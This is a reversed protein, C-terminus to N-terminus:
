GNNVKRNNTVKKVGTAVNKGVQTLGYIASFGTLLGIPNFPQGQVLILANELVLTRLQDQKELDVMRIQVTSIFQDLELQLEQRNILRQNDYMSRVKSECGYILILVVLTVMTAISVTLHKKIWDLM